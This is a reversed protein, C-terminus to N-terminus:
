IMGKAKMRQRLIARQEQVMDYDSKKDEGKLSSYDNNNEKYEKNNKNNHTGETYGPHGESTGEHTGKPTGEDNWFAYNEITILTGQPTGKSIAMKQNELQKLFSMTKKRSWGWRDSLFKITRFVQGRKVPIIEGKSYIEGDKFNAMMLLDIWAQGKAFPKDEWLWHQQIRKRLIFFSNNTKDM